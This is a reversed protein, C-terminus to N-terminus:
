VESFRDEYASDIWADEEVDIIDDVRCLNMNIARSIQELKGLKWGMREYEEKWVVRSAEVVSASLPLHSDGMLKIGVIKDNLLQVEATEIIYNGQHVDITITSM